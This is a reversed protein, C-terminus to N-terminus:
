DQSREKLVLEKAREIPVRVRGAAKDMFGYTGLRETQEAENAQRDSVDAGSWKDVLDQEMASHLGTLVFIVAIVFFTGIGVTTFLPGMRINEEEFEQM